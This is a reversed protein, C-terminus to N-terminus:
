KLGLRQRLLDMARARHSILNKDSPSLEASSCDREPVWFLPDYGFGHEGSAQTLIRGHWLGECLIPLPDDAHRVLALVCVFQAGRESEPVDKLADLLKANNAADGQGDAYRASYIGPAGGLFDVALGSDDALAPLGCIRAANRAKLIANEVFSLGTEEPEVSSFEGISRLQVSGGLMAQLEKLKGANHSALVLQTFNMM